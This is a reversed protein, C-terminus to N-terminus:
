VYGGQAISGVRGPVKGRHLASANKRASGPVKMGEPDDLCPVVCCQIRSARDNLALVSDGGDDCGLRAGLNRAVRATLEPIKRARILKDIRKSEGTMASLVERCISVLSVYEERIGRGKEERLERQM